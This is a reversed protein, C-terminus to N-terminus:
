HGQVKPRMGPITGPPPSKAFGPVHLRNLWYYMACGVCFGLFLNLAALAVVLWVLSWGLTAAGLYLTGAGIALVVAGFGQAFRHPEPNDELVDPRVWGRPKLVGSYIFGFGPKRRITGAAMVLAVLGALWAANLVFAAISLGIIFVQNTRLASHDVRQLNTEM